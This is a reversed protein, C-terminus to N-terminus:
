VADSQKCQLRIPQNYPILYYIASFQTLIIRDENVM